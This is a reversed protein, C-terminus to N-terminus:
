VFSQAVGDFGIGTHSATAILYRAVTVPPVNSQASWAKMNAKKAKGNLDEALNTLYTRSTPESCLSRSVIISNNARVKSLLRDGFIKLPM